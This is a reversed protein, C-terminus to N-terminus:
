EVLKEKPDFGAILLYILIIVEGIFTFDTVKFNIINSYFHYTIFDMLYGLTALFVSIALYIRFKITKIKLLIIGLPILWLSYFLIAAINAEMSFNFMNHFFTVTNYSVATKSNREIAILYIPSSRLIITVFVTMAGMITLILLLWALNKYRKKITSFIAYSLLVWVINMLYFSVIGTTFFLESEKISNLWIVPETSFNVSKMVFTTYFGTFALISYLIGILRKKM